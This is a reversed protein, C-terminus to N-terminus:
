RVPFDPKRKALFATYGEKFDAGSFSQVLLRMATPDEDGAGSKLIRIMEKTARASWRSVEALSDGFSTVADELGQDPLVRSCLGISRAEDAAIIRGTMLLDKANSEGVASVLRRTDALSYVLGLKGPTVGFMATTSAFRFDCALAISCGGGVCSGRIAALSPKTSRELAVLAELMTQTYREASTPSEYVKAFETIDAGAAFHGGEGRLVILSVQRDREADAIAPPLAAWMEASIANRKSPQNLVIEGIPPRSQYSLRSTM